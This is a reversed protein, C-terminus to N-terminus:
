LLGNGSPKCDLFALLQDSSVTWWGEADYMDMCQPAHPPTVHSNCVQVQELRIDVEFNMILLQYCTKEYMKPNTFPM